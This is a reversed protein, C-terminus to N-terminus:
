SSSQQEGQKHFQIIQDCHEKVHGSIMKLVDTLSREAGLWPMTGRQQIQEPSIQALLSTTQVQAEHYENLITQATEYKRSTEINKNFTDQNTLFNLVYPSVDHGQFTNLIDLLLREYSALHAVIDKVSWGGCVGPVDWQNEPLNDVAQTVLIHSRELMDSSNM